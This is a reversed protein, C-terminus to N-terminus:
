KSTQKKKQEKQYKDYPDRNVICIKFFDKVDQSLKGGWKTPNKKGAPDSFYEAYANAFLEKESMATYNDGSVDVVKKAKDSMRFWKHYWHNLFLRNGSTGKQFNAYNTYWYAPSQVCANKVAAPMANWWATKWTNSNDDVTARTPSWSQNGTYTKIFSRVWSKAVDGFDQESGDSPSHFKAPYGGLDAVFSDVGADDLEGYWMGVEDKLWRDVVPAIQAHVGHGVEHRVTHSMHGEDAQIGIEIANTGGMYMGGTGTTAYFIAVKTNESVDSEPLLDLQKWLRAITPLTWATANSGTGSKMDHEFRKKFLVDAEDVTLSEAEIITYLAHKTGESLKKGTPLGTVVKGWDGTAKFKTVGNKTDRKALAKVVDISKKKRLATIEKATWAKEKKKPPAKTGTGSGTGGGTKGKDPSADGGGFPSSERETERGESEEEGVAGQEEEEFENEEGRELLATVARNGASGQLAQLVTPGLPVKAPTRRARREADQIPSRTETM